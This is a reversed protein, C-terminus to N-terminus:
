GGPLRELESARAGSLAVVRIRGRKALTGAAATSAELRYGSRLVRPGYTKAIDPRDLTPFGDTLLRGDAFVFVRDAPRTRKTDAAWGGVALDGASPEVSEVFGGVAGPELPIRRGSRLVLVRGRLMTERSGQLRVLYRGAGAGGVRLLEVLNDRSRIASAPVVASFRVEDSEEFTQAVSRIRGNLVIALREGPRAGGTVSGEILAPLVGSDLDVSALAAPADLRYGEGGGTRLPFTAPDRGLLDGDDDSAFLGADGAGAPFRATIWRVASRLKSRYEAFGVAVEGARHRAVTVRGADQTAPGALSRGGLQWRTSLGLTDILTPLVDINRALRDDIRGARQGPAKIFLPIGAIDGLNEPTVDRRFGGPRFSVGHDAMVVVLSRDYLDNARLRALLRGLLHDVYGVQLLYRQLAQRAYPGKQSWIDFTLGGIHQGGLYREGTPLFEWPLHPLQSHIFHLPPRASPPGIRGLFDAFVGDRRAFAASTIEFKPRGAGSGPQADGGQGFDGFTQDVAPLGSELEDPLVLHLSVVSLDSALSRLRSKASSGPRTEGCTREPCMRTVSETVQADYGGGLLTFLNRPHDALIPLSHEDRVRSGTLIAPVAETTEDAVTTAHRYWTSGRALRAFSPFRTADIQGERDLLSALSLEDFLVFVVPADRGGTAAAVDDASEPLVLKEVPSFFLFACVFLLPAPSLVTLVSRAAQARAYAFAALAGAAISLTLLVAASASLLDDLAQLAIAAVLLGVLALHVAQRAPELRRLALEVAVALTPPVLTVGLALLVIDGGTNGRAVFFEPSDSLVDFLPQAVAFSWLVALHLWWVVPSWRSRRPTDPEAESL